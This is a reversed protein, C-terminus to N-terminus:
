RRSKLHTRAFVVGHPVAAVFLVAFVGAARRMWHSFM